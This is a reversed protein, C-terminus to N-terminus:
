AKAAHLGIVNGDKDAIRAVTGHEGIDTFPQVVKGGAAVARDVAPQVASVDLYITVGSAGPERKPDEILAGTVAHEGGAAFMAHPVGGFVEQSLPRGIVASYFSAAKGLDRVPIEFWNIANKNNQM